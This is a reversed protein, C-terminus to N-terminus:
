TVDVFSYPHENNLGIRAFIFYESKDLVLDTSSLCALSTILNCILNNDLLIHFEIMSSYKNLSLYM